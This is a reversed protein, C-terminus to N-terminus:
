VRERCSARGIELSKQDFAPLIEMRQALAVLHPRIESTIFKAVAGQDYPLTAADHFFFAAQEAMELLTKARTQYLPVIADVYSSKPTFSTTQQLIEQVSIALRPVEAQKIFHSNTWNLKDMDFVSASKGLGELSFKELLEDMTFLEDDGHSWGLRVLYSLMAEPLYGLDKYMMVSTAGHRKSM